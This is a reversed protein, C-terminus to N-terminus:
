FDTASKIYIPPHVCRQKNSSNLANELSVRNEIAARQEKLADEKQRLRKIEREIQVIERNLKDLTAAQNRSHDKYRKMTQIHQQHLKNQASTIVISLTALDDHCCRSITEQSESLAVISAADLSALSTASRIARQYNRLLNQAESINRSFSGLENAVAETVDAQTEEGYVHLRLQSGFNVGLAHLNSTGCDPDALSKEELFLSQFHVDIGTELFLAEKLSMVTCKPNVAISRALVPIYVNITFQLVVPHRNRSSYSVSSDVVSLHDALSATGSLATGKSVFIQRAVPIGVLTEIKPKITSITDKRDHAPLSLIQGTCTKIDWTLNRDQVPASLIQGARRIMLVLNAQNQINYDSMTRDDMLIKGLGKLSLQQQNAAVNTKKELVQKLRLVTTDAKVDLVKIGEFEM